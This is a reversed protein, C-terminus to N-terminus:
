GKRGLNCQVRWSEPSQGGFRSSAKGGVTTFRGGVYVDRGNVALAHVARNVGSGLTSWSSGDWKAIRNASGSCLWCSAALQVQLDRQFLGDLQLLGLSVRSENRGPHPM